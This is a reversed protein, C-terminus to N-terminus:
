PARYLAQENKGFMSGINFWKFDKFSLKPIINEPEPYPNYGVGKNTLTINENCRQCRYISYLDHSSNYKLANHGFLYCIIKRFLM